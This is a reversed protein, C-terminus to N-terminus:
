SLTTMHRRATAWLFSQTGGAPTRHDKLEASEVQFEPGLLEALRAADYRVVPLGSCQQPGEPGFAAIVVLSGMGTGALLCRRYAARDAATTMFHLVARDHWVAYQREPSWSRLDQVLWAVSRSEQVASLRQRAIALGAASIDTVTVDRYGAGLLGDVLTSAGGGVDVVPSSRDPTGNEILELSRVAQDQYWSRTKDGQAYATDWHGATDIPYSAAGADDTM